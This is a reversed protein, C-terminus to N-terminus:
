KGNAEERARWRGFMDAAFLTEQLLTALAADDLTNGIARLREKADSFDAAGRIADLILAERNEFVNRAGTAANDALSELARQEATFEKEAEAFSPGPADAAITFDDPELNYARQYYAPTFRVGQDHLKNDREARDNQVDEEEVFAFVPPLAGSVNLETIWSLLRNMEAIVMAQDQEGLDARVEM